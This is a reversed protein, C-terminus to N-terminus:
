GVQRYCLLFASISKPVARTPCFTFGAKRTTSFCFVSNPLVNLRSKQYSFILHGSKFLLHFTFFYFSSKQHCFLLFASFATLCFTRDVKRTASLSFLLVICKVFVNLRSKHQESLLFASTWKQAEM